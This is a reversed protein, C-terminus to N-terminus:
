VGAAERIRFRVRKDLYEQVDVNKAIRDMSLRPKYNAKRIFMLVPQVVCWQFGSAAWIGPALHSGRGGKLHGYAVFYRRGDQKKTGKHINEKRRDTMNSKSGQETFAGFYSILQQLFAGRLNGRGDDSGPYPDLPIATLYGNPLIGARRLLVESRKEMRHGGFEQAQLIKQPDVGTKDRQNEPAIRVYLQEPTAMQVFSSKLIYPTVRDFVRGMEAQMERRVQFATDNIAKAYAVKAQPGSLQALLDAVAQQNRITANIDVTM